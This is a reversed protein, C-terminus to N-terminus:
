PMTAQMRRTAALRSRVAVTGQAQPELAEEQRRGCCRAGLCSRSCRRPSALEHDVNRVLSSPLYLLQLAQRRLPRTSFVPFGVLNRSQSFNRNAMPIKTLKVVVLSPM